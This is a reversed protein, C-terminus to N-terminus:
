SNKLLSSSKFRATTSAPVAETTHAQSLSELLTVVALQVISSLPRLVGELLPEPKLWISKLAKLVLVTVMVQFWASLLPECTGTTGALGPVEVVPWYSTIAPKVTNLVGPGPWPESLPAEMASPSGVALWSKGLTYREVSFANVM